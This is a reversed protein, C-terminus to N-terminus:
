VAGGKAKRQRLREDMLRLWADRAARARDHCAWLYRDRLDANMTQFAGGPDGYYTLSPLAELQHIDASIEDILALETRGSSNRDAM